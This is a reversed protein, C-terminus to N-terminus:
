REKKAPKALSAPKMKARRLAHRPTQGFNQYNLQNFLQIQMTPTLNNPQAM